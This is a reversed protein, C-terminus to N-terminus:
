PGEHGPELTREDLEIARAALGGLAGWVAGFVGLDFALVTSLKYDMIGLPVTTWLHTMYPEGLALAPLGSALSLLASGAALRSPGFPLRSLAHGAGRAVALAATAAVAVMGAIFGGGPENHGRLLIVAAAALMVPYLGRVFVDLMLARSTLGTAARPLSTRRRDRLLRLLPLAALFTLTVVIIEGLTDVARFDVLIVNVVNRGYAEPVSRTAFFETLTPDPSFADGVLVLAAVVAGVGRALAARGARQARSPLPPEDLDLRRVRLLIAALVVVFAVEVALQTCAVDPAGFAVFLLASSLGVVGSVLLMVFRDRVVCATVSAGVLFLVAGVATVTTPDTALAFAPWRIPELQALTLGLVVGVFALVMALYAPLRGAQLRRTVATAVFPIAGMLAAYWGAAQLTPVRPLKQQQRHLTDWALYLAVGLAITIGLAVGGAKGDARMAELSEARGMAHAADSLLQEVPAPYLGLAIGLTALSLPPLWTAWSGEAAHEPRSRRGQWFIRFTAVGAAAISAASVFISAYTVWQFADTESKAIKIVDKAVYGFSLPIGAMSLGAMSGAAATFPMRPGLRALRDVIRTGAALDVNGAVFFLPAKYLAHALLFAATATAAGEGPLGILLVLMGLASVTSWALIRKLDREQITLVMSWVSTVGGVGVLTLQWLVLDGFAPHLRALLYVGLKVMTASHLYASVPTPAAMAGPLWFHFPVQASKTFAGLFICVLAGAVRPDDIWAPSTDLIRQISTTGAVDSLLLVGALLALGGGGTVMLAQQASSRSEEYGHKFGVLLFSIVSTAEWFVFLLVLDDSTVCGVMAVMFALLLAFLRGRDATTAAYGAAYVLVLAGIGTILLVMLMSLADVHFGLTVGLSPIWDLRVDIPLAGAQSGRAALAFLGLPLLALLGLRSPAPTVSPESM